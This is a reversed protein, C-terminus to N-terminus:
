PHDPSRRERRRRPGVSRACWSCKGCPWTPEKTPPTPSPESSPASRVASCTKCDILEQMILGDAERNAEPDVIAQLKELLTHLREREAKTAEARAAEADCSMQDALNALSEVAAICERMVEHPSVPRAVNSKGVAVLLDGLDDLMADREKRLSELAWFRESSEAMAHKLSDDLKEIRANAEALASEAARL